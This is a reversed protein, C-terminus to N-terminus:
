NNNIKKKSKQCVTPLIASKKQWTEKAVGFYKIM